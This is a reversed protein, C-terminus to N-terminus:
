GNEVAMVNNKKLWRSVTSHSIASSKKGKKERLFEAIEGLSANNARLELVEARYDDLVSRRYKYPRRLALRARINRLEEEVDFEM